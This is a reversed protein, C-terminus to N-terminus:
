VFELVTDENVLAPEDPPVIEVIEFGAFHDGTSVLQGVLLARLRAHEADRMGVLHGSNVAHATRQLLITEAEPDEPDHQYEAM